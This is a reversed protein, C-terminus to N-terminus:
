RLAELLRRKEDRVATTISVHYEHPNVLRHVGRDLADVVVDGIMSDADLGARPAEAAVQSTIQWIACFDDEFLPEGTSSRHTGIADVDAPSARTATM